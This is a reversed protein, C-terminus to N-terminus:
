HSLSSIGYTTCEYLKTGTKKVDRFGNEAIDNKEGLFKLDKLFNTNKRDHFFWPILLRQIRGTFRKIILSNEKHLVTFNRNGKSYFNDFGRPLPNKLQGNTLEGLFINKKIVTLRKFHFSGRIKKILKTNDSSDIKIEYKFDFNKENMAWEFRWTKM